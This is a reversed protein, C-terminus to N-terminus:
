REKKRDSAIRKKATLVLSELGVDMSVFSGATTKIELAYRFDSGGEGRVQGSLEVDTSIISGHKIVISPRPWLFHLEVRERHFTIATFPMFWNWYAIGAVIAGTLLTALALNKVMAIAALLLMVAVLSGIVMQRGICAACGFVMVNPGPPPAMVKAVVWEASFFVILFSAILVIWAVVTMCGSKVVAKQESPSLPSPAPETM